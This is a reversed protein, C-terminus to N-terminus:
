QRIRDAHKWIERLRPFGKLFSEKVDGSECLDYFSPDDYDSSYKKNFRNLEKAVAALHLDYQYQTFCPLCIGEKFDDKFYAPFEEKCCDCTISDNKIDM